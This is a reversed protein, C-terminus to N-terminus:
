YALESLNEAHKLSNDFEEETMVNQRAYVSKFKRGDDAFIGVVYADDGVSYKKMCAYVAASSPSIL